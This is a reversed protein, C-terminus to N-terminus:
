EKTLRGMLEEMEKQVQGLEQELTQIRQQTGAVDFSPEIDAMDVYYLTNWNYDNNRIEEQTARYAFKEKIIQSQEEEALVPKTFQEYVEVIRQIDEEHLLKQKNVKGYHESADVFLVDTTEKGYKFILVAVQLSTGYLLGAPLAIVAELLNNEIVNERIEGEVGGRFLVGQTVLAVAKGHTPHISALMHM